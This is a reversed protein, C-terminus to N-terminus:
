PCFRPLAEAVVLAILGATEARARARGFRAVLSVVEMGDPPEVILAADV